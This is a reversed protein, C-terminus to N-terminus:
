RLVVERPSNSSTMVHRLLVMPEGQGYVPKVSVIVYWGGPPLGNFNFSNGQACRTVRVFPQLGDAPLTSQRNRVEELPVSARETAGYLRSMRRRSYPAEPILAVSGSCTYPGAATRYGIQGNISARGPARSWSFSAPDFRLPEPPEGRRPPPAGPTPGFGPPPPGYGTACAGLGATACAILLLRKM